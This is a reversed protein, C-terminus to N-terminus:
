SQHNVLCWDKFSGSAWSPTCTRPRAWTHDKEPETRVLPPFCYFVEIPPEKWKFFFFGLWTTAIPFPTPMAPVNSVTSALQLHICFDSFLCLDQPTYTNLLCSPNGLNIHLRHLKIEPHRRPTGREKGMNGVEGWGCRRCPAQPGERQRQTGESPPRTFLLTEQVKRPAPQRRSSADTSPMPWEM